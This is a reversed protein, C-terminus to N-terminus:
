DEGDRGPGKEQKTEKEIGREREGEEQHERETYMHESVGCLPHSLPPVELLAHQFALHVLAMALLRIATKSVKFRRTRAPM